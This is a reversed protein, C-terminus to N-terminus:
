VEICTYARGQSEYLGLVDLPQLHFLAALPPLVEGLQLVRPDVQADEAYSGM